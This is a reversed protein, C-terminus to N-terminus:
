KISGLTKTLRKLKTKVIQNMLISVFKGNDLRKVFINNDGNVRVKLDTVFGAKRLMRRYKKDQVKNM